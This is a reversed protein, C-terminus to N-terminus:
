LSIIDKIIKLKRFKKPDDFHLEDENVRDILKNITNELIGHYVSVSSKNLYIEIEQSYNGSDAIEKIIEKRIEERLNEESEKDLTVTGKLDAM